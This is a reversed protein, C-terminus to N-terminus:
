RIPLKQHLVAEHIICKSYRYYRRTSNWYYRTNLTFGGVTIDRGETTVYEGAATNFTDIYRLGFTGDLREYWHQIHYIATKPVYYFIVVQNEQTVKQVPDSKLTYGEFTKFTIM